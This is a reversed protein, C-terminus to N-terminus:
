LAMHVLCILMCDISVQIYGQEKRTFIVSQFIGLIAKNLEPNILIESRSFFQEIQAPLSEHTVECNFHAQELM